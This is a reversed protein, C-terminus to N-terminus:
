KEEQTTNGHEASLSKPDKHEMEKKAQELKLLKHKIKEEGEAILNTLHERLEKAKHGPNIDLLGNKFDAIREEEEKIEEQLMRVLDHSRQHRRDKQKEVFQKRQERNEDKRSFFYKRAALFAEWLKNSHERPVPGIAKWEDMLDNMEATVEQWKNSNKLSEAKELIAKKKELNEQLSTWVSAFHEHKANFFYDKADKFRKWIEDSKEAAVRGTKKWTELMEDFLHSTKTWDTSDKLEEAKAAISMKIELNKDLEKQINDSHQKKRDFFVDKAAIFRNWLEKNKEPITHGIKKWEEMLNKYAETTEKWKESIALNEAKEVIEMKLDLNQLLEKEHEEHTLRKKEFFKNKAAELRNWLAENRKKDVFGTHKWQETISKFTLPAEKWDDSEAITEAQKVLYLKTNYNDNSLAQLANLRIDVKEDLEHIAGVAKLDALYEKLKEIKTALRTKDDAAVWEAEMEQVQKEAEAFKEQLTQLVTEANQETLGTVIERQKGSGEPCYFLDSTNNLVYYEKGKFSIADWWDPLSTAHQEQTM